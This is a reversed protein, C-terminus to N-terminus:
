AFVEKGWKVSVAPYERLRMAMDGLLQASLVPYSKGPRNHNNTTTKSCTASSLPLPVNNCYFAHSDVELDLHRVYDMSCIAPIEGSMNNKTVRIGITKIM